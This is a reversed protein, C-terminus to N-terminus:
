PLVSVTFDVKALEEIAIGVTVWSVTQGGYKEPVNMALLGLDAMQKVIKMDVETKKAREKAGPALEKQAFEQVQRRFLEEEESFVFSM